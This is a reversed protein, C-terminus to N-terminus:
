EFPVDFSHPSPIILFLSNILKREEKKSFGEKEGKHHGLNM